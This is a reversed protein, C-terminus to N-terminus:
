AISPRNDGHFRWRTADQPFKSWAYAVRLRLVYGGVEDPRWDYKAAFVDAYRAIFSPDSSTFVEATGELIVVDDGSELHIVVAPNAALNRGTRPGAGFYLAGDVWAGWVPVAHPQGDAGVSGVWYNRAKKLQETVHSWPLMGKDGEPVGYGPIHPRSPIPEALERQEPM